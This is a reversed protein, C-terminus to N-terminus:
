MGWGGMVGGDEGRQRGRGMAGRGRGMEREGNGGGLRGIGTAGRGTAGERSGDGGERVPIGYKSALQVLVVNM